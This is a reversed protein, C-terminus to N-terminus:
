IYRKIRSYILERKGRFSGRIELKLSSAMSAFIGCKEPDSTQLKEAAYAAMFTDGLGTPDYINKPPFAPIEYSGGTIRSYIFAGRDGRTIIVEEPGFSTLKEAIQRLEFLKTGLIIRAEIEDLFLLKVYGLFEKFDEWPELFIQGNKVQRLYGQAGLYIPIQFESLYRLTKLPIDYPSLPCLLVADFFKLDVRLINEPKIPNKPVKAKQIRHNLDHNPYINEFEMTQPVFVPLVKIDEPLFNLLEKDDASITIVGTTDIGLSSLVNSQHYVAGGVSHCSSGGKVITDRTVPGILMFKPM